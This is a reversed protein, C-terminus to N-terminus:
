RNYNGGCAAFWNGGGVYAWDSGGGNGYRLISQRRRESINPDNCEQELRNHRAASAVQSKWRAKPDEHFERILVQEIVKLRDKDAHKEAVERRLRDERKWEWDGNTDRVFETNSPHSNLALGQIDLLQHNANLFQGWVIRDCQGAVSYSGRDTRVLCARPNNQVSVIRESYGYDNVLRVNEFHNWADRQYDQAQAVGTVGTMVALAMVIKKIM